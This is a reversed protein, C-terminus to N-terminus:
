DALSHLVANKSGNTKWVRSKSKKCSILDESGIGIGDEPFYKWEIFCAHTPPMPSLNVSIFFTLQM